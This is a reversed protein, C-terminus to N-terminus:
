RIPALAQWWAARCFSARTLTKSIRRCPTRMHETFVARDDPCTSMARLQTKVRNQPFWTTGDVQLCTRYTGTQLSMTVRFAHACCVSAQLSPKGQTGSGYAIAMAECAYPATTYDVLVKLQNADNLVSTCAREFADAYLLLRSTPSPLLGEATVQTPIGAGIVPPEYATITNADVDASRGHTTDPQRVSLHAADRFKAFNAAAATGFTQIQGLGVQAVWPVAGIKSTFCVYYLQNKQDLTFSSTFRDRLWV